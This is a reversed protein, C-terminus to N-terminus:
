VGVMTEDPCNYKCWPDVPAGPGPGPRFLVGWGFDALNGPIQGPIQM